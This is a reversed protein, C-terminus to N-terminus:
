KGGVCTVDVRVQEEVESADIDGVISVELNDSRLQAMIAERMGELTLAEIEEPSPDRFRRRPNTSTPSTSVLEDNTKSLLCAQTSCCSAPGQTCVKFLVSIWWSTSETARSAGCMCLTCQRLVAPVFERPICTPLTTGAPSFLLVWFTAPGGTPDWCPPRSAHQLSVEISLCVVVLWCPSLCRDPGLMAAIICEESHTRLRHYPVQRPGAHRSHHM